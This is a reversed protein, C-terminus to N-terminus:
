YRKRLVESYEGFWEWIYGVDTVITTGDECKYQCSSSHSLEQEITEILEEIDVM